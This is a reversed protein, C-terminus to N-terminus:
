DHHYKEGKLITFARYLQEIFFLRVMQHSFTMKSLSLKADARKYVEESFGYAGGIVLILQKVSANQKSEIFQAFGRSSFEKGNEDLLVLFDSSSIEKLLVEGEAKKLVEENYNSKKVSNLVVSEFVVYKTLRKEFEKVGDKIYSDDTKGIQILKIKM